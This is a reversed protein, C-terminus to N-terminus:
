MGASTFLFPTAAFHRNTEGAKELVTVFRSSNRYQEKRIQKASMSDAQFGPPFAHM